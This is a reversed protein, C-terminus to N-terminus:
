RGHEASNDSDSINRIASRAGSSASHSATRLRTHLRVLLFDDGVLLIAGAARGIVRAITRSFIEGARIDREDRWLELEGHRRRCALKAEIRGAIRSDERAYCIFYTPPDSSAVAFGLDPNLPRDVGRSASNCRGSGCRAPETTLRWASRFRLWLPASFDGQLHCRAGRVNPRQRLPSLWISYWCGILREQPQSRTRLSATPGSRVSCSSPCPLRVRPLKLKIIHDTEPRRSAQRRTVPRSVRM